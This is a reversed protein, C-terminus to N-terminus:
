FSSEGWCLGSGNSLLGCTYSGGADIASFNYSGSVAVPTTKDATGGNGLQGSLGDGAGCLLWVGMAWNSAPVQHSVRAQRQHWVVPCLPVLALWDAHCCPQVLSSKRVGACRLGTALCAVLTDMARQWCHSATHALCQWQPQKSLLAAMAWSGMSVMVQLVCCGCMYALSRALVQHSVCAQRKHVHLAAPCAVLACLWTNAYCCPM